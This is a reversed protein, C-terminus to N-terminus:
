GFPACMGCGLKEMVRRSARNFEHTEASVRRAGLEAFGKDLLARAGETVYGKGWAARRLRYGLSM